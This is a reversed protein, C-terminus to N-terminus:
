IRLTRELSDIWCCDLCRTREEGDEDPERSVIESTPTPCGCGDCYEEGPELTKADMM